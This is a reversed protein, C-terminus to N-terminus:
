IRESNRFGCAILPYTQTKSFQWCHPAGQKEPVANEFIHTDAAFERAPFAYSM